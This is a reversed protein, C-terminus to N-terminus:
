VGQATMSAYVFDMVLDLRGSMMIDLPSRGGLDESGANLWMRLTAERKLARMLWVILRALDRLGQQYGRADPRRRVSDVNQHIIRAVDAVSVGLIRALARADYRGTDANHAHPLLLSVAPPEIPVTSSMTSRGVSRAAKSKDAVRIKARRITVNV